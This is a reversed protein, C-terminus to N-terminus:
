GLVIHLQVGLPLMRLYKLANPNAMKLSLMQIFLNTEKKLSINTLNRLYTYKYILMNEFPGVNSKPNLSKTKCFYSIFRFKGTLCSRTRTKFGNENCASWPSWSDFM